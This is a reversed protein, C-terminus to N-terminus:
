KREGLLKSGLERMLATYAKQAKRYAAMGDNRKKIAAALTVEAAKIKKVLERDATNM